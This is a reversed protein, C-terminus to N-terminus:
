NTGTNEVDTDCLQKVLQSVLLNNFDLYLLFRKDHPTTIQM